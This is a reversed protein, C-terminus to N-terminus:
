KCLIFDKAECTKICKLQQKALYFVYLPIQCIFKEM